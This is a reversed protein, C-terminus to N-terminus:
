WKAMVHFFAELLQIFQDSGRQKVSLKGFQFPVSFVDVDHNV